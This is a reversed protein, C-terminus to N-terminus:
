SRRRGRRARGCRNPAAGRSAGASGRSRAGGRCVLSPLRGRARARVALGGLVVVMWAALQSPSKAALAVACGSGAEVENGSAGGAGSTVGATTSGSGSAAAGGSGTAAATAAQGSSASATATSPGCNNPGPKCAGGLCADGLTCADGDDCTSGDAVYADAPCQAAAGDCKEAADCAGAASRCTTGAAIAGCVGDVSSGLAKSCAQCDTKVGGGCASECCVGDVCHDNLCDGNAVCAGGNPTPPVFVYAEGYYGGGYMAGVIVAGSADVAVSQGFLAGASKDSAVLIQSEKWNANVYNFLYAAGTSSNRGFAGAIAVSGRVAIGDGFDDGPKADSATIKQTQTWTAGGRQFVYAAGANTGAVDHGAAGALVMDGSLGVFEAFIDNAKGDNPVLKQQFSWTGGNRVFVYAAGEGAGGPGDKGPAGAVATDASLAVSTGLHALAQPDNALLKAQQVWKVGDFVFVYAAGYEYMPGFQPGNKYAGSILTNGELAVSFGLGDGPVADAETLIQQETWKGNARKFVYVAGGPSRLRAGVALTDGDVAVSHGFLDTAKGDSALLKQQFAWSKGSRVYVYVAGKKVGGTTHDYAGVAVTDGSMSVGFGFRDYMEQDQAIVSGQQTWVLPDVVLPYCADEDDIRIEIRQGVASLRAPVPRERCDRVDLKGYRAVVRGAHRLAIAAGDAPEPVLGAVDLGLVLEGAGPERASIVFGQEVGAEANVFWEAIGDRLILARNADVRLDRARPAPRAEARGLAVLELTVWAEHMDFRAAGGEAISVDFGHSPSRATAASGYALFGYADPADHHTVGDLHVTAATPEGEGGCGLM